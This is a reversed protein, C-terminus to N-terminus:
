RLYFYRSIILRNNIKSFNRVFYKTKGFLIRINYGSFTVKHEKLGLFRLKYGM